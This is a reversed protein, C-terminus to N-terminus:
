VSFNGVSFKDDKGFNRWEKYQLSFITSGGESLTNYFIDTAIYWSANHLIDDTYYVFDAQKIRKIVTM